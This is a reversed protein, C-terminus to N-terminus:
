RCMSRDFTAGPSSIRPWRRPQMPPSRLLQIRSTWQSSNHPATPRPRRPISLADCAKARAAELVALTGSVNTRVYHAPAVYSYPIGILAALHFITDFGTSLQRVLFPDAVDGLVVELRPDDVGSLFGKSSTSSYADLVLVRADARILAETLHSGIFGCGGTVLVRRDTWYGVESRPSDNRLGDADAM